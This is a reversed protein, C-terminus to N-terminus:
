TPQKWGEKPQLFGDPGEVLGMETATKKPFLGHWRGISPDCESCLAPLKRHVHSPWYNSTATNEVAGCKECAYVPM